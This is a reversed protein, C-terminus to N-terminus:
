DLWYYLTPTSGGKGPKTRNVVRIKPLEECLVIMYRSVTSPDIDLQKAIDKRCMPQKTILSMIRIFRRLVPRMHYNTKKVTTPTIPM